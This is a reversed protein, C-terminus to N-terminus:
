FTFRVGLRAVRPALVESVFNATTTNQRAQRNLITASNFVNFADFAIALRKGYVPLQKEVRLDLQTFNDFRSDGYRDISVDARGLGGARNPSQIVRNYPYGQRLNLFGSVGIDYWPLVYLGSVKGFWRANATGTQAGDLKDISTPDQYSVDPGLYDLITSQFNASAYMLWRKNLRKRATLELANYTRTRLANRTTSPGPLQFPLEYYTVVYSPQDCSTNGCTFSATVPRYDASHVGDTPSFNQYRPLNRYIYLAGVSFGGAIEHEVGASIEDTRDNKLNPDVSTSSVTANPRAPDYNGAFSIL